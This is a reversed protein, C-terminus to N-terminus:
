TGTRKSRLLSLLLALLHTVTLINFHSIIVFECSWMPSIDIEIEYDEM